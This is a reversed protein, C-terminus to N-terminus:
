LFHLSSWGLGGMGMMYPIGLGGAYYPSMMKICNCMLWNKQGYYILRVTGYGYM